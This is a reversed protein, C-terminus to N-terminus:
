VLRVPEQLRAIRVFWPMQRRRLLHRFDQLVKGGLFGAALGQSVATRGDKFDVKPFKLATRDPWLAPYSGADWEV